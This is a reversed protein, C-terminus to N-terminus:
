PPFRRNLSYFISFQICKRCFYDYSASVLLAIGSSLGPTNAYFSLSDPLFSHSLSALMKIKYELKQFQSSLIETKFLMRQHISLPQLYIKLIQIKHILVQYISLSYSLFRFIPPSYLFLSLLSLLSFSNRLLNFNTARFFLSFERPGQQMLHQESKLELDQNDSRRQKEHAM